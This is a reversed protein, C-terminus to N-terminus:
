WDVLEWSIIFSDFSINALERVSYQTQKAANQRLNQDPLLTTMLPISSPAVLEWSIPWFDLEHDGRRVWAQTFFSLHRTLVYM